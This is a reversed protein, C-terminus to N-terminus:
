FETCVQHHSLFGRASLSGLALEEGMGYSSRCLVDGSKAPLDQSKPEEADSGKTRRGGIGLFATGANWGQRLKSVQVQSM